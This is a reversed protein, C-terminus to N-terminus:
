LTWAASESSEYTSTWAYRENKALSATKLRQNVVRLFASGENEETEAPSRCWTELRRERRKVVHMILNKGQRGLGKWDKGKKKRQVVNKRVPNPRKGQGNGKYSEM